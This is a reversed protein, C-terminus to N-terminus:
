EIVTLLHGWGDGCKYVPLSQYLRPYTRTRGDVLTEDLFPRLLHSFQGSALVQSSRTLLRYFRTYILDSLASILLNWM